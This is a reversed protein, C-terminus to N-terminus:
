FYLVITNNNGIYNNALYMLYGTFLWLIYNIDLMSLYWMNIEYLPYIMLYLAGMPVFNGCRYWINGMTPIFQVYLLYLLTLVIEIKLLLM